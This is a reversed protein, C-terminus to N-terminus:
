GLSSEGGQPGSAQMGLRCPPGETDPGKQELGPMQGKLQLTLGQLVLACHPHTQWFGQQSYSCRSLFSTNSAAAAISHGLTSKPTDQSKKKLSFRQDM